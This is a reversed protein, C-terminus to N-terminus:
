ADLDIGEKDGIYKDLSVKYHSLAKVKNNHEKLFYAYRGKAYDQMRIYHNEITKSLRLATVPIALGCGKCKFASDSFHSGYGSAVDLYIWDDIRGCYPCNFDKNFIDELEKRNDWANYTKDEM